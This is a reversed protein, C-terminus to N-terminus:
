GFVGLARAERLAEATAAHSPREVRLRGRLPGGLLALDGLLDLLKHRIPEEPDRARFRPDDLDVAVVAGEPLHAALGRARLAELERAAGFTRATAIRALFDARDGTWRARGALPVGFRELPFAVRAEVTTTAIAGGEGEGPEFRYCADGVRVDAARVVRVPPAPEGAARAAEIAGAFARACGDVLPVEGGVIELSLGTFAELGVVAALLHEVGGVRRAVAGSAGSEGLQVVTARDASVVSLDALRAVADGVVVTTAGRAPRLHVACPRGGHLGIGELLVARPGTM